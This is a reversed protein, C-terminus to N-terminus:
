PARAPDRREPPRRHDDRKTVLKRFQASRRGVPMWRAARPEAEIAIAISLRAPARDHDGSARDGHGEGDGRDGGRTPLQAPLDRDPGILPGRDLKEGAAKLDDTSKKHDAQLMTGFDKIEASTGKQAALKGSEIEFMDSAAVTNAFDAAAMAVVAATENGVLNTGMDINEATANGIPVEAPRECAALALALAAGAAFTISRTM